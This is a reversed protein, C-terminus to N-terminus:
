FLSQQFGAVRTRGPRRSRPAAGFYPFPCRVAAWLTEHIRMICFLRGFDSYVWNKVFMFTFVNPQLTTWRRIAFRETHAMAVIRSREHGSHELPWATFQTLRPARTPRYRHLFLGLAIKQVVRQLRAQEPELAVRGGPLVVLSELIREDLAPRRTLMRDVQGGESTKDKLWSTVGVHALVALFYEEDLSYSRNCDACADVTPLNAPYPKELLCRAVVHDATTGAAAGCYV